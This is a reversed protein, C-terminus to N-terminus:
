DYEMGLNDLDIPNDDRFFSAEYDLPEHDENEVAELVDQELSCEDCYVKKAGHYMGMFPKLQVKCSTCKRWYHNRMPKVPYANM